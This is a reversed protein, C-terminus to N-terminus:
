DNMAADWEEIRDIWSLPDKAKHTHISKGDVKIEYSFEGGTLFRHVNVVLYPKGDAGPHPTIEVNSYKSRIFRCVPTVDSADLYAKHLFAKKLYPRIDAKVAGKDGKIKKSKM